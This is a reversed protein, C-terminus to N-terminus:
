TMGTEQESIVILFPIHAVQVQLVTIGSMWINQTSINPLDVLFVFLVFCCCCFFRVVSFANIRKGFYCYFKRFYFVLRRWVFNETPAPISTKVHTVDTSLKLFFVSISNRRGRGSCHSVDWVSLWLFAHARPVGSETQKKISSELVSDSRRLLFMFSVTFHLFSPSQKKQLFRFLCLSFIYSFLFWLEYTKWWDLSHVQLIGKGCCCKNQTHITEPSSVLCNKDMRPPKASLSQM